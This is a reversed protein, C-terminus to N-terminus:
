KLVAFKKVDSFSDTQLRYFYIGSSLKYNNISFQYNYSGTQKFEDVLTAVERGLMDYVKLSVVGPVRLQYRIITSSNFPNPYNQELAWHYNSESEPHINTVPNRANLIMGSEGVIWGTYQDTFQVDWLNTYVGSPEVEWLEGNLTRILTGFFGVAYVASSDVVCLSRLANTTPSAQQIWTNGSNTTKLVIGSSGVVWGLQANVFDVNYFTAESVPSAQEEWTIGGNTTHYIASNAGVAWGYHEDVFDLGFFNNGTSTSQQFWNLGGNTTKIITGYNGVALGISQNVFHIAKLNNITPNASAFWTNGGDQTYLIESIDGVIWGRNSDFFYVSNFNGGYSTSVPNWLLGGTTTHLITGGSGIVWGESNSLMAVSRLSQETNTQQRAWRVGTTSNHQYRVSARIGLAGNLQTWTTGNFRLSRTTFFPSFFAIAFGPSGPSSLVIHFDGSVAINLSSMDVFAAFAFNTPITYALSKQVGGPLGLSDEHVAVNVQRGQQNAGYIFAMTILNSPNQSPTMRVSFKEISSNTSIMPLSGFESISTETYPDYQLLESADGTVSFIGVLEYAVSVATTDMTLDLAAQVAANRVDVFQSNSVLYTTFARYFIRAANMRGISQSLNYMVKNHIGSNIHVGGNDFPAYFYEAMHATQAGFPFPYFSYGLHPNALNRMYGPPAIVIEEGGTWNLTDFAAAMIDSFSENLAGPQDLYLLSSTVGTIGHTIEHAVIDRSGSWARFETGDGDGYYLQNTVWSWFANNYNSGYHVNSVISRGIGDWSTRGFTTNLFEYFKGSYYHADVAPPDSFNQTNSFVISNSVFDKTIINGYIESGAIGSPGFMSRTVDIMRYTSGQQYAHLERTVGTVGIGSAIVPGDFTTQNFQLILEGTNADIFVLWYYEPSQIMEAKWALRPLGTRTYIVRYMSHLIFNFPFFSKVIMSAKLSDIIPITSINHSPHLRGGVCYVAGNTNIHVIVECPWVEIGGFIQQYRVHTKGLDDTFTKLHLFELQGDNIGFLGSYQNLFDSALIEPLGVKPLTLQGSLYTPIQNTENWHVTPFTGTRASIQRLLNEQIFKNQSLLSEALVIFLVLLLIKRSIM